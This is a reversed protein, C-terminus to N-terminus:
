LTVLELEKVCAKADEYDATNIIHQVRKGLDDNVFLADAAKDLVRKTQTFAWDIKDISELWFSSLTRYEVGYSKSRFAGAKGYLQRRHLDRDMVISPVGLYLDCLKVIEQNLAQTTVNVEKALDSPTFGIHIHGGASRLGNTPPEPRENVEGNRWACFDPTCGFEDAQPHLLEEAPMFASSQIRLELTPSPLIKKIQFLGSQINFIFEERTKAPPINFEVLVNDEQVMIGKDLKRPVDKSGGILGISSRFSNYSTDFLFIEPDAGITVSGLDILKEM